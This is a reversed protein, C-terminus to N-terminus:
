LLCATCLSLYKANASDARSPLVVPIDTGQLLGATKAGAFLTITKYFLNGSEIDPFVLADADGELPSRIGKERMSTPSCSTKMDLPGDVICPGFKGEKAEQKIDAYGVTFPFHRADTKETCHVLSIKPEAVGFRRCFNAIYTVQEERQEQTPFPIVAADTFFLFKHYAPIEATTVHTLVRGRPLIGCEKDLIAHLIVDSPVLGKMLVDIEGRRAAAVAQRSAAQADGHNFITPVVFGEQEARDVAEQTAKDNPCVVGIRRKIRNSKLHAILEEFTKIAM